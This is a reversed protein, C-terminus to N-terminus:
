SHTAVLPLSHGPGLRLRLSSLSFFHNLPPIRKQLLLFGFVGVSASTLAWNEDSTEHPHRNNWNPQLSHNSWTFAIRM